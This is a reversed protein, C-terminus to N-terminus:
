SLRVTSLCPAGTVSRGMERFGVMDIYWAYKAAFLMRDGKRLVKRQLERELQRLTLKVRPISLPRNGTCPDGCIQGALAHRLMADMSRSQIIAGEWRKISAIGVKMRDALGRQTLGLKTRGAVIEPGSLLGAKRRYSDAMAKQIKTTQDMTSAELSCAPCQFIEVPYSIEVGRFTGQKEKKIIEMVGHGKPCKMKEKEM